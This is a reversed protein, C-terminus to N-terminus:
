DTGRGDREKSWTYNEKSINFRTAEKGMVFTINETQQKKKLYASVHNKKKNPNQFSSLLIYLNLLLAKGNLFFNLM